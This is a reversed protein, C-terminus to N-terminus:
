PKDAGRSARFTYNVFGLRSAAARLTWVACRISRFRTFNHAVIGGAVFNFNWETVLNYVPEVDASASISQVRREGQTTTVKTGAQLQSVKQWGNATLVSHSSTVRITQGDDLKVNLIRSLAHSKTKLVKQAEFSKSSASWGMVFQGERVKEIPLQGTATQIMTGAPFCQGDQPRGGSALTKRYRENAYANAEKTRKEALDRMEEKSNRTSM